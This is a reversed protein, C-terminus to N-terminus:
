KVKIVTVIGELHKLTNPSNTEVLYWGRVTNEKTPLRINSDSM